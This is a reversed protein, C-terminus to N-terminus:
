RSRGFSIHKEHMPLCFPKNRTARAPVHAAFLASGRVGRAFPRNELYDRSVAFSLPCIDRGPLCGQVAHVDVRVCPM